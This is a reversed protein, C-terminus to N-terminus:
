PTMLCNGGSQFLRRRVDEVHITVSEAAGQRKGAKTLGVSLVAPGKPQAVSVQAATLSLLEETRLLGFYAVLLGLAFLHQGKCLSYGVLVESFEVPLPPARNPVM